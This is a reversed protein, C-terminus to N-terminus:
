PAVGEEDEEMPEEARKEKTEQNLKLWLTPREGTVDVIFKDQVTVLADALTDSFLSVLTAKPNKNYQSLIEQFYNSDAKIEEVIRKTYATADAKIKAAEANAANLQEVQYTRAFEEEKSATTESLLLNQFSELTVLPPAVIRLTLNELTVGIHMDAARKMLANKVLTEYGAKDYYTKAIDLTASTTIITDDLLNKLIMSAATLTLTEVKTGEDNHALVAKEYDPNSVTTESLCEMFYEKPNSIRYTMTWECHMMSNDGLLVYSDIGPMLKFQREDPSEGDKTKGQYYLYEPQIPMFSATRIEQKTIPIRVIRNIPYPAYWHWGESCESDFKGFKLVIVSQSTSDVIFSGGFVLFWGLALVIFCALIIFFIKLYRSLLDVGAQLQGNPQQVMNSNTKSANMDSM